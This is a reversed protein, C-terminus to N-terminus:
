SYGLINFLDNLPIGTQDSIAEESMGNAKMRKVFIPVPEGVEILHHDPDFIRFTQQGWPEEHLEQFFEVGAAKLKDFQLKIKDDEFYLETRNVLTNNKLHLKIPHDDGVEWLGINQSLTINTGFNHIIDLGIIKTYFHKATKIDKVFLVSANLKM